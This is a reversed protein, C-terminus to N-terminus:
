RGADAARHSGAMAAAKIAAVDDMVADMTEAMLAHVTM